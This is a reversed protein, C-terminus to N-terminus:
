HAHMSEPTLEYWFVEGADVRHRIRDDRRVGAVVAHSRRGTFTALLWANRIARVTDMGNVTWSAEVAVYQLDGERDTAEFILDARHFSRLENAAIGTTDVADSLSALETGTLSARYHLGVDRAILGAEKGAVDAPARVRSCELTTSPGALSYKWVDWASTRGTSGSSWPTM